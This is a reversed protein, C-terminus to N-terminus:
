TLRALRGYHWDVLWGVLLVSASSGITLAVAVSSKSSAVSM